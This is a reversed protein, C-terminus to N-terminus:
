DSQAELRTAVTASLLRHNIGLALLPPVLLLLSCTAALRIDGSNFYQYLSVTLTAVQSDGILLTLAYDFWSILFTQFLCVLLLPRALPVLVQLWVQRRRAGLSIALEALTLVQPNWFGSLLIVAYAYAFILQALMVGGVHGALHLRLFTFLLSVGLVVPSIAFPMHLLALLQGQRPHHAVSRSSVFGLATALVAVAIGMGLSRLVVAGLANSDAILDQWQRAQLETPLLAPWTWHRALSLLALLVLPLVLLVSLAWALARRIM